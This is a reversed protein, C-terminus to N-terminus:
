AEKVISLLLRGSSGAFILDLKCNNYEDSISDHGDYSALLEATAADMVDVNTYESIYPLIDGLLM